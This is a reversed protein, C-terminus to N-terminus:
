DEFFKNIPRPTSPGKLGGALDKVDKTSLEQFFSIAKRATNIHEQISEMNVKKVTDFLGGATKKPVSQPFTSLVRDAGALSYLEFLKQYTTENNNVRTVLDPNQRIFTKFEEKSAM